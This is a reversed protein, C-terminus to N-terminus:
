SPWRLPCRSRRCSNSVWRACTVRSSTCHAAAIAARGCPTASLAMRSIVACRHSSGSPAEIPRTENCRRDYCGPLVQACRRRLGDAPKSHAGLNVRRGVHGRPDKAADGGSVSPHRRPDRHERRRSGLSPLPPPPWRPRRIRRSPPREDGLLHLVFLALFPGAPGDVRPAAGSCPRRVACCAASRGECRALM